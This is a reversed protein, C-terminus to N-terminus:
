DNNATTVKPFELHSYGNLIKGAEKKGVKCMHAGEGEPGQWNGKTMITGDMYIVDNDVEDARLISLDQYPFHPLPLWEGWQKFLFAVGAAECQKQLQTAWAPHMPRAHPGSEGGVIVWDIFHDNNDFKHGYDRSWEGVARCKPCSNGVDDSQGDNKNCSPCVASGIKADYVAEIDCNGCLCPGSDSEAGHYGCMACTWPDLWKAIDIKGLLPEISLFRISTPIELLKPIDRDAEAQNCVTAGLWVHSPWKGDTWAEPPMMKKVNGIRKTLLMWDLNPTSEILRMVDTRWEPPVENDFVDSLSSCFVRRRAPAMHKFCDCISEDTKLLEAETGRKGCAMCQYFPTRNWKHVQNWNQVSTRKRPKGQGWEVIHLRKDLLAEAYCFRCAESGTKTCSLWGSWSSDAWEINTISAM